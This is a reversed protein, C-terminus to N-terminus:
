GRKKKSNKKGSFGPLKGSERMSRAWDGIRHTAEHDDRVKKLHAMVISYAKQRQGSEWLARWYASLAETTHLMQYGTREVYWDYARKSLVLGQEWQRTNVLSIALASGASVTQPSEWGLRSEAIAFAKRRLELAGNNDGRAERQFAYEVYSLVLAQHNPGFLDTDLQISARLAIEAQEFDGMSSYTAAVDYLIDAITPHKEGYLKLLIEKARRFHKLAEEPEKRGAYVQGMRIVLHALWDAPVTQDIATTLIALANDYRGRSHDSKALEVAARARRRTSLASDLATKAATHAEEYRGRALYVGALSLFANCRDEGSLDFHEAIRRAELGLEEAKDVRNLAVNVYSLDTLIRVGLSPDDRESERLERQASTLLEEVAKIDTRRHYPLYAELWYLEAAILHENRKVM